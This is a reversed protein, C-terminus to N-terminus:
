ALAQSIDLIAWYALFEMMRLTLQEMAQITTDTGQAKARARISYRPLATMNAMERLLIITGACHTNRGIKM